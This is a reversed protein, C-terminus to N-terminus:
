TEIEIGVSALDDLGNQSATLTMCDVFLWKKFNNVSAALAVRGMPRKTFTALTDVNKGLDTVIELKIAWDNKREKIILNKQM